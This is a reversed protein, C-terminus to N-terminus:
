NGDAEEAARAEEELYFKMQEVADIRDQETLDRSDGFGIVPTMVMGDTKIVEDFLLWARTDKEDACTIHAWLRDKKSNAFATDVDSIGNLSGEEIQYEALNYEMVAWGEGVYRLYTLVDGAKLDIKNEFNEDTPADITADANMTIEVKESVTFFELDDSEVRGSNWLQYTANQPVPCEVVKEGDEHMFLRGMLTVNEDLVSFGPPYEGPWGASTYWVEENYTISAYDETPEPNPEAAPDTSTETTIEPETETIEPTTPEPDSQGCAVLLVAISAATIHKM